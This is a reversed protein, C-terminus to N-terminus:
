LLIKGGSPLLFLTKVLGRKAAAYCCVSRPPRWFQRMGSPLSGSWSGVFEKILTLNARLLDVFSITNEGPRKESRRFLVRFAPPRWSQRMGGPLSRSLCHWPSSAKSSFSQRHTTSVPVSWIPGSVEVVSLKAGRFTIWSKQGPYRGGVIFDM